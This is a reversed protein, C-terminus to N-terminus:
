EEAIGMPQLTITCGIKEMAMESMADEVKELDAPVASLIPFTMTINAAEQSDGDDSGGGSTGSSCGTLLSGMMTMALVLSLIKKKM